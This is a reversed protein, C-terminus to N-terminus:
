PVLLQTFKRQLFELYKPYSQLAYSCGFIRECVGEIIAM